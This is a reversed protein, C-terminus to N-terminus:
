FKGQDLLLSKIRDRDNRKLAGNHHWAMVATGAAMLTAATAFALAPSIASWLFGVVVISFLDGLSNVAMFVGYGVVCTEKPVYETTM